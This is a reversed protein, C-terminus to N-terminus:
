HIQAPATSSVNHHSGEAQAQHLFPRRRPRSTADPRRQRTQLDCNLEKASCNRGLKIPMPLGKGSGSGGGWGVKVEAPPAFAVGCDCCCRVAAM